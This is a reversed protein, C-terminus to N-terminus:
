RSKRGRISHGLVFNGFEGAVQRERAPTKGQLRVVFHSPEDTREFKAFRQYTLLADDLTKELYIERHFRLETM